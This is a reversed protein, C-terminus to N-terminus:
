SYLTTDYRADDYRGDFIWRFFEMFFMNFTTLKKNGIQDKYYQKITADASKWDATIIKNIIRIVSRPLTNKDKAVGYARVSNTHAYRDFVLTKGVQGYAEVSMCPGTLKAM